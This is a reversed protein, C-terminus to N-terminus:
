KELNIGIKSLFKDVLNNVEDSVKWKYVLLFGIGLALVTKGTANIFLLLLQNITTAFLHPSVFHKWLWSIAIILLATVVVKILGYSLPNIKLKWQTFILLSIIYLTYSVLMALAAGTMGFIPIFQLNSAIVLGVLAFTFLLSYYYYKSFNLVSLSVSFSSDILRSLGIFFVVWKGSAYIKGNPLLEFVFDINIWILLFIFCATLFQHLSIRRCLTNTYAIDKDKISQSIEPLSIALLSRYPIEVIIAIYFAISYIGADQLGLQGSVIFVDLKGMISGSLTALILFSTYFLFSNRLPKSIFSWNPKFSVKKLSFLYIINLLTAVGYVSVLLTIFWDLNIYRFAYLLYVVLTMLRIGIERIFKPVVIRMLVNANTEFVVIYLFFFGLPIIYYYYNVFLASNESFYRSIPNKLIIFLLTTLIFGILPIIITWFFFGNDKNKEDKFYPYFRIASSSIGMQSLAGFLLGAELLIRVLGIEEATLFKTTIAFTIVFGIFAGVYNVITGKISQRIIIGM